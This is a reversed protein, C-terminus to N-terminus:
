QKDADDFDFTDGHISSVFSSVSASSTRRIRPEAVTHVVAATSHADTYLNKHHHDDDDFGLSQPDKTTQTTIVVTKKTKKKSTALWTGVVIALLVGVSALVVALVPFSDSGAAHDSAATTNSSEALKSAEEAAEGDAALKVAKEDTSLPDKGRLPNDCWLMDAGFCEDTKKIDPLCEAWMTIITQKVRTHFKRCHCRKLQCARIAYGQPGKCSITNEWRVSTDEDTQAERIRVQDIDFTCVPNDTSLAPFSVPFTARLKADVSSLALHLVVVLPFM